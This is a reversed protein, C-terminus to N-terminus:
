AAKEIQERLWAEARDVPWGHSDMLHLAIDALDAWRHCYICKM